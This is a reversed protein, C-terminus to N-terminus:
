NDSEGDAAIKKRSYLNLFREQLTLLFESGCPNIDNSFYM